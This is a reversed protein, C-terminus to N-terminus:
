QRRLIQRLKEAPSEQNRRRAERELYDEATLGVGDRLDPRAGSQILMSVAGEARDFQRVAYILATQGKRNSADVKAGAALLLRLKEEPQFFATAAAMLATEGQYSSQGPDAGADLLKRIADPSQAQTAFMLATWGSSDSANPDAQVSLLAELQSLDGSGSAQMLPTLGPKPGRADSSLHGAFNETQPDGHIWRHTDALADVERDLERLWDPAGDARDSVGKEQSGIQIMTTATPVDSVSRTYFACLNWFGAARFKEILPRTEEPKVQGTRDGAAQVFKRWALRDPWGGPYPGHLGPVPWLLRLSPSGRLRWASSNGRSAGHCGSGPM